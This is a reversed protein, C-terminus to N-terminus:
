LGRNADYVRISRQGLYILPGFEFPTLPHSFRRKVKLPSIKLTVRCPHSSLSPHPISVLDIRCSYVQGGLDRDKQKDGEGGAGPSNQLPCKATM